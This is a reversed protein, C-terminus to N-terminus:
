ASMFGYAPLLALSTLPHPRAWQPTADGVEWDALAVQQLLGGKENLGRMDYM